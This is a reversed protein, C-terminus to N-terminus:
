AGYSWFRASALTNKKGVYAGSPDIQYLHAGDDDYGAFLISIGFPRVGGRMTYEQAISATEQALNSLYIPEGLKLKEEQTYQRAESMLVRFDPGLGAYTGGVHETVLQMKQYSGEEILISHLKKEVALVVCDKGRIGLATEGKAVANMAYELQLVKGIQIILFTTNAM